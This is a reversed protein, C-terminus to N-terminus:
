PCDRDKMHSPKPMGHYIDAHKEKHSGSYGNKSAFASSKLQASPKEAYRADSHNPNPTWGNRSAQADMERSAEEYSM